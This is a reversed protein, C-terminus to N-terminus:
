RVLTVTGAKEFNSGDYFHGKVAYTYVGMPLPEGGSMNKGNWGSQNAQTFDSTQYVISGWKDYIRFSFDEPAVSTGYVKCVSNEPNTTSPEFVNPIYIVPGSIDVFNIIPNTKCGLNNTLILTVPFSGAHLFKHTSIFNVSDIANGEQFNWLWKRINEGTTDGPTFTVLDNMFPESPIFTFSGTPAALLNVKMSDVITDCRNYASFIFSLPSGDTSAPTYFTTDNISNSFTGLGNPTIWKFQLSDGSAETAILKLPANSCGTAPGTLTIGSPPNLFSLSVSSSDSCGGVTDMVTARYTGMTSVTLMTQPSGSLITNTSVNKWIVKHGSAITYTPDVNLDITNGVCSYLSSPTIAPNPIPYVTIQRVLSDTCGNSTTVKLKVNYTQVTATVPFTHPSPSVNNATNVKASGDNFDWVNILSGVPSSNPIFTVPIGSCVSPPGSFDVTLSNINVPKTISDMCNNGTKVVLKVNYIGPGSYTYPPPNQLGSTDSNAPSVLPDGFYWKWSTLVDNADTALGVISSSDKFTTSTPFCIGSFTFNAEPTARVILGDVRFDSCGTLKDTVTLQFLIGSTDNLLYTPNALTTDSFGGGGYPRANPTSWSYNYLAYNGAAGVQITTGRCAIGPYTGMNVPPLPKVTYNVTDKKVCGTIPDTVTLYYSTAGSPTKVYIPSTTNTISPGPSSSWQYNYAALSPGILMSDVGPNSPACITTDNGFIVPFPIITVKISDKNTCANAGTVTLKFTTTNPISAITPQAVSSISGVSPSSTWSYTNGAIGATGIQKNKLAGCSTTDIGPDALPLPLSVVKITDVSSCGNAGTVTVYYTGVGPAVSPSTSSVILSTTGPISGAYGVKKWTYSTFGAPVSLTTGLNPCISVTCSDAVRRITHKDLVYLPAGAPGDLFLGDPNDLQAVGPTIGNTPGPVGAQGAYNINSSDKPNIYNITFNNKEGAYLNRSNDIALGNVNILNGLSSYTTVKQVFLNIKRVMGNTNGVYLYGSYDIALSQPQLYKATSFNGNVDAPANTHLGLTKVFGLQSVERVVNNGYDAVYVNGAGDVVIGAPTWFRTTDKRGDGNWGGAMAVGAFISVQGGATIKRIVNSSGQETVYLNDNNDIAIGFPQNFTATALTTGTSGAVGTGAYDSVVGAPTIKRIKNNGFDTVYINGAKDKVMNQPFNFSASARAGNASGPVGTGAFATITRKCTEATTSVITLPVPFKYFINVTDSNYCTNSFNVKVSYVGGKSVAYTPTGTSDQWVMSSVVGGPGIAPTLTVMSGECVSQDPGLSVSYVPLSTIKVTDGGICGNANTVIVGINIYSGGAPAPTPLVFHQKTAGAVNTLPTLTNVSSKSWQYSTGNIGADLSDIGFRNTCVSRDLGLNPTPKPYVNVYSILSDQCFGASFKYVIMHRGVGALSPTFNYTSGTLTIGNGSYSYGGVGIVSACTQPTLVDSADTICHTTDLGTFAGAKWNSIAFRRIAKNDTDAVDIYGRNYVSLATPHNFRAASGVGDVYGCQVVPPFSGAITTVTGSPSSKRISCNKNDSFYINGSCDLSIGSPNRLMQAASNGDQYGYNSGVLTSVTGSALVLKKIVNDSYSSYYVATGDAVLYQADYLTTTAAPGDPSTFCTGATGLLTTVNATAKDIRRITCNNLDSVYIINSTNDFTLSFPNNFRATTGTGNVSGSTGAVSGAYVSLTHPATIKLIQHKGSNAVYVDGNTPDVILGLPNLLGDNKDALITVIGTTPDTQYVKNSDADTFYIIGKCDTYLGQPKSLFTAGTGSPGGAITIACPADNVVISQSLSKVFSCDTRKYTVTFTGAGSVSPDFYYDTGILVVGRGSFVGGSVTPTLKSKLSAICFPAGAVTWSTDCPGSLTTDSAIGAATQCTATTAKVFASDITGPAQGTVNYFLTAAGLTVSPGHNISISYGTAGSVSPWSFHMGSSTVNSVSVTPTAVINIKVTSTVNPCVASKLTLTFSNVALDVASATYTATLTTKNPSFTGGNGGSWTGGGVSTGALTATTTTATQACITQAPGANPGSVVTMIIKNMTDVCLGKLILASVTDHNALTSTSFTAGSFSRQKLVNNVYYYVSDYTAGGATIVSFVAATGTCITDNPAVSLTASVPICGTGLAIANPIGLTFIAKKFSLIATPASALNGLSSYIGAPSNAELVALTGSAAGGVDASNYILEVYAGGDLKGKLLNVDWYRPFLTGSAYTGGSPGANAQIKLIPKNNSATYRQMSYLVVPRYNGGADAVPFVMGVPDITSGDRGRRYMPGQIYHTTFGALGSISGASDIGLTDAGTTQIIAELDLQGGIALSGTLTKIGGSVTLNFFYSNSSPLAFITQSAGNFIVVGMYLSKSSASTNTFNGAVVLSDFNYSQGTITSNFDGDIQLTGQNILVGQNVVNGIIHLTVNNIIKLTDGALINISGSTSNSSITVTGAYIVSNALWFILSHVLFLSFKNKFYKNM